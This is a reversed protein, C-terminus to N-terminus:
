YAFIQFICIFGAHIPMLYISLVTRTKCVTGVRESFKVVNEMDKSDLKDFFHPPIGMRKMAEVAFDLQTVVGM